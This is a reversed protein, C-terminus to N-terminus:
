VYCCTNFVSSDKDVTSVHTCLVHTLTLEHVCVPVCHIYVHVTTYVWGLISCMPLFHKVVVVILTPHAALHPDLCVYMYM